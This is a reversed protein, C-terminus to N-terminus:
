ATLFRSRFHLDLNYWFPMLISANLTWPTISKKSKWANRCVQKKFTKQPQCFAPYGGGLWIKPTCFDFFQPFPLTKHSHWLGPQTLLSLNKGNQSIRCEKTQCRRVSALTPPNQLPGMFVTKIKLFSLLVHSFHPGLFTEFSIIRQNKIGFPSARVNRFSTKAQSM